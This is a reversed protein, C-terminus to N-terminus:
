RQGTEAPAPQLLASLDAPELAVAYLRVDAVARKFFWRGSSPHRAVAAPFDDLLTPAFSGTVEAALAGDVYLRRATPSWTLALHTWRGPRLPSPIVCYPGLEPGGVVTGFLQPGHLGLGMENYGDPLGNGSRKQLYAIVVWGEWTGSPLSRPDFDPRVWLALTGTPSTEGLLLRAEPLELWADDGLALGLIDPRPGAVLREALGGAPVHLLAHLGHGSADRVFPLRPDFVLHLVPAPQSVAASLALVTLTM